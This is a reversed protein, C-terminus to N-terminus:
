MHKMTIAGGFTWPTVDIYNSSGDFVAGEDSGTAGEFTATINEGNIGTDAVSSTTDSTGRLEFDHNPLPIIKNTEM